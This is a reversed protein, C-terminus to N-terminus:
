VAWDVLGERECLAKWSARARMRDAYQKLAPWETVPRPMNRSWRMLMILLLDVASFEKGLMCPGNAALHADLRDWVSEIKRQLAARVQPSNEPAGLDAPYFWFRYTAALSNSLYMIWQYWTDREASALPPALRAEPHRDALMMLIAASEVMPRGGIVLTPVVGQPNLKLYAPDRQAGKDFDVLRLEHPAGIELLAQHVVMSATGPSYFLTYM